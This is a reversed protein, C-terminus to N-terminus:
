NIRADWVLEKEVDRSIPCTIFCHDLPASPVLESNHEQSCFRLWMPVVTLHAVQKLRNWGFLPFLIRQVRLRAVDVVVHAIRLLFDRVSRFQADVARLWFIRM